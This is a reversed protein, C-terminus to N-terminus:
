RIKQLSSADIIQSVAAFQLTNGRLIPLEKFRIQAEEFSTCPQQGSKNASTSVIGHGLHACLQQLQPHVTLRVALKQHAGRLWSPTDKKCPLLWTLATKNDTQRQWSHLVHAFQRSILATDLWNELQKLEGAVIILGKAQQRSKLALLNEVCSKQLPNCAIGYVSESPHLLLSGSKILAAASKTDSIIQKTM